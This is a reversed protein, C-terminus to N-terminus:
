HLNRFSCGAFCFTAINLPNKEEGSMFLFFRKLEFMLSDRVAHVSPDEPLKKAEVEPPAPQTAEEQGPPPVPPTSSSSSCLPRPEM